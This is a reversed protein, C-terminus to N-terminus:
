RKVAHKAYEISQQERERNKKIEKKIKDNFKKKAEQRKKIDM